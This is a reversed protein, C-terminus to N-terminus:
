LQKKVTSKKEFWKKLSKSFFNDEYMPVTFEELEVRDVNTIVNTNTKESDFAGKIM